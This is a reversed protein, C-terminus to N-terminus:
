LKLSSLRCGTQVTLKRHTQARGAWGSRPSSNVIILQPEATLGQVPRRIQLVPNMVVVGHRREDTLVTRAAPSAATLLRLSPLGICVCVSVGPLLPGSLHCPPRTPAPTLLPGESSPVTSHALSLLPSRERCLACCARPGSGPVLGSRDFCLFRTLSTQLASAPRGRHPRFPLGPTSPGLPRAPRASPRAPQPPATLAAPCGRSALISGGQVPPVALLLLFASFRFLLLCQIEFASLAPNERHGLPRLRGVRFCLAFSRLGGVSVGPLPGAM